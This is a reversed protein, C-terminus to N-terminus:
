AEVLQKKAEEADQKSVAEKISAPAGDVKDKAILEEIKQTFKSIYM